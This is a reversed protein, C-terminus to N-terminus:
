SQRRRRLGGLSILASGFLWASAPVPVAGVVINDFSFGITNGLGDDPGWVEVKKLDRFNGDLVFTELDDLPGNDWIGDLKFIQQVEGGSALTGIVTISDAQISATGGYEGLDISYLDFVKNTAAHNASLSFYGLTAMYTDGGNDPLISGPQITRQLLGAGTITDTLVYNGEYYWANAVGIPADMTLTTVAASALSSSTLLAALLSSRIKM